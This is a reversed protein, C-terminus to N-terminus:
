FKCMYYPLENYTLILHTKKLLKRTWAMYYEITLIITNQAQVITLGHM